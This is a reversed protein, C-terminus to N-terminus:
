PGANSSSVKNLRRASVMSSSSTPPIFSDSAGRAAVDPADGSTSDNRAEPSGTLHGFVDRAATAVPDGKTLRTNVTAQECSYATCCGPPGRSTAVPAPTAEIAAFLATTWRVLGVAGFAEALVVASAAAVKAVTAASDAVVRGFRDWRPRYKMPRNDLVSGIWTDGLKPTAPRTSLVSSTLM